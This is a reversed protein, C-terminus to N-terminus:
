DELKEIGYLIASYVNDLCIVCNDILDKGTLIISKGAPFSTMLYNKGEDIEKM